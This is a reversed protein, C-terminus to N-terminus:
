LSNTDDLKKELLDNISKVEDLMSMTDLAMCLSFVIVTMLTLVLGSLNNYWGFIWGGILVLTLIYALKIGTELIPYRFEFRNVVHIGLYIIINIGLVEFVTSICILSGGYFLAIVALVVLAIGTTAMINVITKKM